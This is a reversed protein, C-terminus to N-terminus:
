LGLGTGSLPLAAPLPVETEAVIEPEPSQHLPPMSAMGASPPFPGPTLSLRSSPPPEPVAVCIPGSFAPAPNTQNLGAHGPTM